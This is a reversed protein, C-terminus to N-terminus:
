YEVVPTVSITEESVELRVTFSFDLTETLTSRGGTFLDIQAASLRATGALPKVVWGGGFPEIEVKPYATIKWSVDGDIRNDTFHYFPCATPALVKQAACQDLFRRVQASVDDVLRTTARTALTLRTGASERRDLVATKVAPAAFYESTYHAEFEGPYFVAFRNTGGPLAVRVGNLTAERQNVVAVELTPLTAPVFEWSNFFMWQRGTNELEFSTSEQRGDISYTVPIEVRRDGASRPEGVSVNDLSDVSARLAPGDLMAANAPPVTANLLGLAKEGEGDRLAELYNRVQQEPGYVKTNVLLITLVAAGITVMLGLLWAAVVKVLPSM